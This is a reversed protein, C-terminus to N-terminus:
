GDEENTSREGGGEPMLDKCAKEANDYDPDKEIAGDMQIGGGPVPDPFDEVGNERMCQAYERLAAEIEPDIPEQNEQAGPDYERCAEM